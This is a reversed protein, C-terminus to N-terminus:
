ASSSCVTCGRESSCSTPRRSRRMTPSSCRRCGPSRGASRSSTPRRDARRGEVHEGDPERGAASGEDALNLCTSACTHSGSARGTLSRALPAWAPSTSRASAPSTSRRRPRARRQRSIDIIVGEGFAPHEVDDGIRLGLDQANSPQPRTARARGRAGGRRGARSARRSAQDDDGSSAAASPVAAPRTSGAAITAARYSQRGYVSRGTVNGQDSSWSPPSRTSSGRRRTTSRPASCSRSWAHTIYLRREGPHHRRLRPPAGGGDRRARHAGPHAPVGGGRRRDPVRGPVRPGQGLAADDARGPRRRRSRRHRRRAVVQELFEDLVTFERASGVLEGLNEIRGAVRGHGRGRARRPLRLGDLAAQLLDGPGVGDRRRRADRAPPRAPSSRRRHRARAPGTVGAEDARRLADVFTIATARGRVRRAQRRQRRRRRAQARQAGAQRQGRRGPQRGGAPVGDRGQDRAPRLLPHRRGGQVARRPAHVGGRGRPEPREHPLLVAIERWNIADDDHLQTATGAVWTAEDGEDEAHYRVIRDGQGADTWLNKPKREANNAIVANAADLITQTSRYNQDLVVTTVDPFAEEFQLINRFDAGRFRYVSQDTDGVVSVNSTAAPSCSSSRTRPRNTDQYEDVLIHEFRERYHELVDPHERFLEVTNTLLDDFDMAGAKSCARRTSATCRPTSATSSTAAGARGGRRPRRAREELMSIVAHVGRPPFRKADLGLDRIVYGTLRVADAQDYISFQRPYGLRDGNARLIRVCASHFTRCGCRGSSRASSRPRGAARMEDAAKNTFTIALIASPHSARTSSTPSATRSCGTKGSGAGAVVLLPGDRARRRRASRPQPRGDRARCHESRPEREDVSFSESQSTHPM